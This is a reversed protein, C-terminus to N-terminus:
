LIFKFKYQIDNYITCSEQLIDSAYSTQGLLSHNWTRESLHSIIDRSESRGEQHTQIHWFNYQLRLSGFEFTPRFLKLIQRAPLLFLCTMSFPSVPWNRSFPVMIGFRSAGITWRAFQSSWRTIDAKTESGSDIREFGLQGGETSWFLESRPKLSEQLVSTLSIIGLTGWGLGPRGRANQESGFLIAPLGEMGM